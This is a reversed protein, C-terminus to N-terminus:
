LGRNTAHAKIERWMGQLCNKRKVTWGYSSEVLKSFMKILVSDRAQKILPFITLFITMLFFLTFGKWFRKLQHPVKLFERFNYLNQVLSISNLSGWLSKLMKNEEYKKCKLIGRFECGCKLKEVNKLKRLCM